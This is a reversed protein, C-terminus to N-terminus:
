AADKIKPYASSAKRIGKWLRRDAKRDLVWVYRHNGQHRLKRTVQATAVKLWATLEAATPDASPLELAGARLLQQSSYDWGKEKKRIKSAARDNFNLVKGDVDLLRLTRARGRGLYAANSAQYITGLHGGFVTDGNQSTRPMPDSFSLVGRIGTWPKDDPWNKPPTATVKLLDFCRALFWTEGNGPVEDLLVFRGLEVGELHTVGPFWNTIAANNCPQSFVAVGVLTGRHFLGFQYRLTTCTGSYHHTLVFAKAEVRSIPAVEYESTRITEAPPRYTARGLEWRQNGNPRLM